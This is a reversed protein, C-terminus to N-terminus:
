IVEFLINLEIKNEKLLKTVLFGLRLGLILVQNVNLRKFCLPSM